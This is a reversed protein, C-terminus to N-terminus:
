ANRPLPGLAISVLNSEVIAVIGRAPFLMAAKGIALQVDLGSRDRGSQLSKTSRAFTNQNEAGRAQVEDGAEESTDVGSGDRYGDM